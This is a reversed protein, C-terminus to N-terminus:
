RSYASCRSSPSALFVALAPLAMWAVPGHQGARAGRSHSRPPALPARRFEGSTLTM